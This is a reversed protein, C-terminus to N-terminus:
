LWSLLSIRIQGPVGLKFNSFAANFAIDIKRAAISRRDRDSMRKLVAM